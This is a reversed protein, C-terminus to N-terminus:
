KSCYKSKLELFVTKAPTSLYFDNSRKRAPLCLYESKVAVGYLTAPGKYINGISSSLLKQQLDDMALKVVYAAIVRQVM